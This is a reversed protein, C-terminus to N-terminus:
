SHPGPPRPVDWLPMLMLMPALVTARAEPEEADGPTFLLPSVPQPKRYPRPLAAEGPRRDKDIPNMM